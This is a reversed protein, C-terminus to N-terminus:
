RGTPRNSIWQLKEEDLPGDLRMGIRIAFLTGTYQCYERKQGNDSIADGEWCADTRMRGSAVSGDNEVVSACPSATSAANRLPLPESDFASRAVDVASDR